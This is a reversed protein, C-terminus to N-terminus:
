DIRTAGRSPALPEARSGTLLFVFLKSFGIRDGVKLEATAKPALRIGNLWTGNTSGEDVLWAAGSEDIRISAHTGSVKPHELQLTCSASAGLTSEGITLPYSAGGDEAALRYRPKEAPAEPATLPPADELRSEDSAAPTPADLESDMTRWASPSPPPESVPPAPAKRRLLFFLAGGGLIVGGISLILSMPLKGSSPNPGSGGSSAGQSAAAGECRCRGTTCKATGSACNCQSDKECPASCAGEICQLGQACDETKACQCAPLAGVTGLAIHDNGLKGSQWLVGSPGEVSMEVTMEAADVDGCLTCESRQLVDFGDSFNALATEIGPQLNSDAAVTALVEGHTGQAVSLLRDRGLKLNRKEKEQGEVEGDRDVTVAFVPIGYTSATKTLRNSPDAEPSISDYGDSIILVARLAITSNGLVTLSREANSYVDGGRGNSAAAEDVFKTLEDLNSVLKGLERVKSGASDVIAYEGNKKKAFERRLFSKLAGLVADSSRGMGGARDLVILLSYSEDPRVPKALKAPDADCGGKKLRFHVQAGPELVLPNHYVVLRSQEKRVKRISFDKAAAAPAAVSLLGVLSLLACVGVSSRSRM